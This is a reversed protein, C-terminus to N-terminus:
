HIGYDSIVQISQFQVTEQIGLNGLNGLELRLLLAYKSLEGKLLGVQKELLDKRKSPDQQGQGTWGPLPTSHGQSISCQFMWTETLPLLLEVRFSRGLCSKGSTGTGLGFRVLSSRSSTYAQLWFTWHQFPLGPSPFPLSPLFWITTQFEIRQSTLM